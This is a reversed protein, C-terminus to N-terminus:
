THFPEDALMTHFLNKNAGDRIKIAKGVRDGLGMVTRKGVWVRGRIMKRKDRLKKCWGLLLSDLLPTLGEELIKGRGEWPLPIPHLQYLPNDENLRPLAM